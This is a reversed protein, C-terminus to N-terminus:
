GADVPEIPGLPEAVKPMHVTAIEWLIESDIRFYADALRVRVAMLERWPVSPFRDRSEQSLQTAAEGAIEVSRELARWLMPDSDLQERGRHVLEAVEDCSERIDDLRKIDSRSM